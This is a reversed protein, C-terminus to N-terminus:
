KCMTCLLFAYSTSQSQTRNRTPVSCSCCLNQHTHYSDRGKPHWGLGSTDKTQTIILLLFMTSAHLQTNEEMALGVKLILQSCLRCCYWFSRLRYYGLLLTKSPITRAKDSYNLIRLHVFSMSTSYLNFCILRKPYTSFNQVLQRTTMFHTNANHLM